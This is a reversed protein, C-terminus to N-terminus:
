RYSDKGYPNMVWRQPIGRNASASVTGSVNRLYRHDSSDSLRITYTCKSDDEFREVFFQKYRMTSKLVIWTQRTHCFLGVKVPRIDVVIPEVPGPPDRCVNFFRGDVGSLIAYEGTELKCTNSM